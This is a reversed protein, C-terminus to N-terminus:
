GFRARLRAVAGVGFPAVLEAALAAPDASRYLARQVAIGAAGAAHANRADQMSHLGGLGVRLPDDAAATLAAFGRAARGKDIAIPSVVVVPIGKARAYTLGEGDHDAVSCPLSEYTDHARWVAEPAHWGLAGREEAIQASVAGVNIVLPIPLACLRLLLARDWADRKDRFMLVLEACGVLQEAIALTRAAPQEHDTLFWLM